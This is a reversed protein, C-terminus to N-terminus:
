SPERDPEIRYRPNWIQLRGDSLLATGEVTCRTGPCLGAVVPRGLFVLDVTGTGDDLTYLASRTPSSRKETHRVIRGTLVLRARPCAGAVSRTVPRRDCSDPDPLDFASM